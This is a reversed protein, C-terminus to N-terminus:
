PGVVYVFYKNDYGKLLRYRGPSQEDRVGKPIQEVSELIDYVIAGDREMPAYIVYGLSKLTDFLEDLRGAEIVFSSKKQLSM